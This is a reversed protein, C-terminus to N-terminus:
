EEGTAASAEAAPTEALCALFERDRWTEDPGGFRVVVLDLSPLIYLRQNGSGAAAALEPLGGPYFARRSDEQALNRWLGLGYEPSVASGRMMAEVAQKPLVERGRWAGTEAILMGLRIWERPRLSAGFAADVNGAADREWTVESVGIPTLVRSQLYSEPTDGAAALTRRLVEVFVTVHSPGYQFRRGPGSVAELALARKALDPTRERRLYAFGPELGSTLHLLQRIRIDSKAPDAAFEEITFSVPEDLDLLDDADAAVAALGWFSESASDLAHLADADHGNQGSELVIEGGRSILLSHGAHIESYRAACAYRRRWGPAATATGPTGHAAVATPLEAAADPGVSPAGGCATSLLGTAAALLSLRACLPSRGNPIPNM